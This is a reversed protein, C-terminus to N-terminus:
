SDHNISKLFQLYSGNDDTKQEDRFNLSNISVGFVTHITTGGSSISPLDPFLSLFRGSTNNQQTQGTSIIENSGM